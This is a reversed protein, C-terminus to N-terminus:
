GTIVSGMIHVSRPKGASSDHPSDTPTLLEDSGTPLPPQKKEEQREEAQDGEYHGEPLPPPPVASAPTALSLGDEEIPTSEPLPPAPPAPTSTVPPDPEIRKRLVHVNQDLQLDGVRPNLYRQRIEVLRIM